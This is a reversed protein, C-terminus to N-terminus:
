AREAFVAAVAFDDDHTLTLALRVASGPDHGRLELTPEGSRRRVVELDRLRLPAGVAAALARRGAVKAAFRAALSHAPDRKRRAYAIEGPLFVRELLRRESRELARAFRRTSVMEVGIGVLAGVEASL